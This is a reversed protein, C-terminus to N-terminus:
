VNKGRIFYLQMDILNQIQMNPAYAGSMWDLGDQLMTKQSLAIISRASTVYFQEADFDSCISGDQRGDQIIALMVSHISDIGGTFQRVLEASFHSHASYNDLENLLRLLEPHKERLSGYWLLVERMRALGDLGEAKKEQISQILNARVIRWFKVACEAALNQKTSFYRYVTAEGIGARRAIDTIKTRNIGNEIFERIAADKIIEKRTSIQRDLEARRKQVSNKLEM